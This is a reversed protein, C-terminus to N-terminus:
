NNKGISIFVALLFFRKAGPKIPYVTYIGNNDPQKYYHYGFINNRGFLNSVSFHVITFNSMIETLYSASLSLDQYAKTKDSLFETNNPNYYTRGSAYTYTFGFQTALRTVFYKGVVSLNHKSVFTPVASKMFYKYNRKTDLFSYSIWYDGYKFSKQDRWFIDFGKAYGYGKNNYSEPSYINEEDYKLLDKYNKYYGEIRFVREDKMIQYNLIYHVAKEFNLNDSFRLYDNQPMQYFFGYALSFQSYKGTKYALALRPAINIKNLLSSYELRGGVRAAFNSNLRLKTESFFASLNDKFDMSFTSDLSFKYYDVNYRNNILEAGFKININDNIINTLVLRMQGGQEKEKVNDKGIDKNDINYNYSIGSKILWKKNIIGRYSTNIYNNDNVLKIKEKVNIVNFDPYILSKISHSKSSYMKILGNKGIKQRLIISGDVGEPKKQWDVDQKVLNFYPLLNQYNASLCLSTKDWRKTRVAGIGVTLLSISTKDKAPMDNTNLILASSLAQGYEASYGGSSFITGSFLNPTFRGRSPLDPMKSTYPKQVLMGDIFTKTEYGEGGRVFLGGDEAVEQTGPLTNIAGYINGISSATTVIDIPKLVVAKKRDSAEFAGASIVVTNLQNSNEKLIINLNIKDGTLNLQKEFTKYGIFSVVLTQRDSLSTNITFKGEADSTIGQYTNKFFINAGTIAEGKKNAIRGTVTTQAQSAFFLIIFLFIFIFSKM